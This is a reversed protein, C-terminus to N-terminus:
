SSRFPLIITFTAGEHLAGTASIVGGHHAVIERCVALGIGTGKYTAKDHLRQFIAFIKESYENLFGIGNDTIRIRIYRRSNELGAETIEKVSPYDAGIHIVPPVNARSFKLSNSL